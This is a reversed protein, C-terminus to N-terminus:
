YGSASGIYSGNGARIIDDRSKASALQTTTAGDPGMSYLDFDSNVPHLSKDKLMQGVKPAPTFDIPLYHYAHGWPDLPIAIGLSALTAPYANHASYYRILDVALVAITMKAQNVMLRERYQQYAPIAIAALAAAVALAILMELLTFGARRAHKM